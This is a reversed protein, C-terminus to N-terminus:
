LFPLVRANMYLEANTMSLSSTNSWTYYDQGDNDMFIGTNIAAWNTGSQHFGAAGAADSDDEYTKNGITSQKGGCNIHLSYFATM